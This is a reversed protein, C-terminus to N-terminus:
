VLSLYGPLDQRVTRESLSSHTRVRQEFLAVQVVAYSYIHLSTIDTNLPPRDM